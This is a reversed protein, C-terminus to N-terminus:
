THYDANIAIYERSFDCTIATFLGKGLGLDCLINVEKGKLHKEVAGVNFKTGGGKAFVKVGGITITLKQPDVKAASKGLACAIRGWNPDGGHVACKFLPSDAVSKAAIKADADNRAGRVTVDVVKTAGEGDAVVARALAECIETLAATFKVFSAGKATITKNGAAGSALVVVTDSTSTDSDVTIGNFTVGSAQKLAQHLAAPAIAADTTIVGIMTALSPAIMGAGKIIGALTVTKGDIRTQVVATKPRTDTTMIAAITMEDNGTGLQKAAMAIGPRIKNMPLPHGIIGTSAVLVKDATTGLGKAADAAMTVADKYGGKGTCVNSCGSNIVIGRATGYGKPWTNRIYRVPEGFVQNSTTVVAMAADSQAAIVAVDPKGSVKIGATVGAAVFGAPLTIHRIKSM